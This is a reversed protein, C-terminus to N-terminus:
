KPLKESKICWTHLLKPFRVLPQQVAVIVRDEERFGGQLQQGAEVRVKGVGYGIIHPKLLAEDRLRREAVGRSAGGAAQGAMKSVARVGEAHECTHLNKM